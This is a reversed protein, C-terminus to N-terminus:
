SDKDLLPILNNDEDNTNNKKTKERKIKKKKNPLNFSNTWNVLQNNRDCARARGFPLSRLGDTQSVCKTTSEDSDGSFLRRMGGSVGQYRLEGIPRICFELAEDYFFLSFM